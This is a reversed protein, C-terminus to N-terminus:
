PTSMPRSRSASSPAFKETLAPSIEPPPCRKRTLGIPSNRLMSSTRLKMTVPLTRRESTASTLRTVGSSVTPRCRFPRGPTPSSTKLDVPAFMTSTASRTIATTSSCRLSGCSCPMSTITSCFWASFMRLESCSSRLAPRIPAPRASTTSNRNRRSQGVVTM